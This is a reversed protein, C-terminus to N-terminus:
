NFQYDLTGNIPGKYVGMPGLQLIATRKNPLMRVDQLKTTRPEAYVRFPTYAILTWEATKRTKRKLLPWILTNSVRTYAAVCFLHM